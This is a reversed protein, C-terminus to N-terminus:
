KAMKWFGDRGKIVYRKSGRQLAPIIANSENDRRMIIFQEADDPDAMIKHPVYRSRGGIRTAVRAIRVGMEVEYPDLGEVETPESRPKGKEHDKEPPTALLEAAYKQAAEKEHPSLDPYLYLMRRQLFADVKSRAQALSKTAHVMEALQQEIRLLRVAQFLPSLRSAHDILAVISLLGKSASARVKSDGDNLHESFAARDLARFESLFSEPATTDLAASLSLANGYPPLRVAIMSIEQDTRDAIALMNAFLDTDAKLEAVAQDLSRNGLVTSGHRLLFRLAPDLKEPLRRLADFIEIYDVAEEVCPRVKEEIKQRVFERDQRKLLTDASYVRRLNEAESASIAGRQIYADIHEPIKDTEESTIQHHIQQQLRNREGIEDASLLGESLAQQVEESIQVPAKKTPQSPATRSIKEAVRVVNTKPTASESKRQEIATHRVCAVLDLSHAEIGILRLVERMQGRVFRTIAGFGHAEIDAASWRLKKSSARFAQGIANEVGNYLFTEPHHQNIHAIIQWLHKRTNLAPPTQTLEAYEEEMARLFARNSMLVDGSQLREVIRLWLQYQLQSSLEGSSPREYSQAIPFAATM